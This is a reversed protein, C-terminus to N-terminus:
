AARISAFFGEVQTRLTDSQQSLESASSLLKTATQGTDSAAESV